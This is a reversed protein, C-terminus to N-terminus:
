IIQPKEGHYASDKEYEGEVVREVLWSDESGLRFPPIVPGDIEFSHEVIPIHEANLKASEFPPYRIRHKVSVM